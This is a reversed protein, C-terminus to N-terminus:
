YEVHGPLIAGSDKVGIDRKIASMIVDGFFGSLSMGIGVFITAIGEINSIHPLVLYAFIM